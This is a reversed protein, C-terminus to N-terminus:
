KKANTIMEAAGDVDIEQHTGTIKMPAGSTFSYTLAFASSLSLSLFPFPVPEQPFLAM